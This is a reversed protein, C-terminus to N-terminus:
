HVRPGLDTSPLSLLTLLNNGMIQGGASLALMHQLAFVIQQVRKKCTCVKEVNRKDEM